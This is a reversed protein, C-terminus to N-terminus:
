GGARDARARNTKIPLDSGSIEVMEEAMLRFLVIESKTGVRLPPGWTGTGSSTFVQLNGLRSLGYTFRGHVKSVVWSWPWFQGGHTHGSLQLSIGAEEPVNLNSPQHALLISPRRRDIQARRLIAQFNRPDRTEHDHVGVIQLGETVVKENHLVRLGARELAALLPARDGFEDHNGSVFYAGAPAELDAWPQAVPGLDIKTGDFMDGSIFVAAPKLQNLRTVIRRVFNRGRISGAHVDSVLAIDRGQWTDPLNPLRVTARTVRLQAANILGYLTTLVAGGFLAVALVRTDLPRGSLWAVGSVLWCAIAAVFAYNLLGLATASVVSLARLLPHRRHFSVIMVPVFSGVLLMPGIKWAPASAGSFHIWTA